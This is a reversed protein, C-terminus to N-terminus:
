FVRYDDGKGAKISAKKVEGLCKPVLPVQFILRMEAGSLPRVTQMSQSIWCIWGDETVSETAKPM